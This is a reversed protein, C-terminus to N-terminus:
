VSLIARLLRVGTRVHNGLERPTRVRAVTRAVYAPRLYFSRLAKRRLEELETDSLHQTKVVARVYNGQSLREPKFLGQALADAHYETGALPYAVNVDVYDCDLECMFDITQEIMARDEWPLGILFLGYSRIGADKCLKVADRAQQLTARKKMKDLSAQVGSEIGFAVVFCGARKMWELRKASITDVRSNCGWRIDLNRAIIKQCLEVTWDEDWTFTDAKFYFNRFGHRVICEEIEDVIRDPSRFRINRGATAGVLCYVCRHPCGRSTDIVTLPEGTDPAIYLENRLKDRAPFPLADFAETSIFARARTHHWRGNEQYSIGAIEALPKGEALEAVAFEPENRIAVDVHALDAELEVRWEAFPGGRAVTLTGPRIQKALAFLELDPGWTPSTMSAVVMEPRFQELDRRVERWGVREAAYDRVHVDVEREGLVAAMYALDMPTKNAQATMSDIPTQCRDERVYVGTPPYALLM